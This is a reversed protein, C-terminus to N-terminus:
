DLLKLSDKYDHTKLVKFKMLEDKAWSCCLALARNLIRIKEGNVRLSMRTDIPEKEYGEDGTPIDHKSPGRPPGGPIDIDPYIPEFPLCSEYKIKLINCLTLKIKERTKDDIKLNRDVDRMYNLYSHEEIIEFIGNSM